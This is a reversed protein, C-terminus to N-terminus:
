IPALPHVCHGSLLWPDHLTWVIKKQRSMLPLNFLSFFSEAHILQLHILDAQQYYDSFYIAYTSIPLVSYLSLRREIATLYRDLKRTLRNGIQYINSNSYEARHVAMNSEQGLELLAQYIQYGNFQKGINDWATIQLINM